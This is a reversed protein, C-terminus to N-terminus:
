RTPISTHAESPKMVEGDTTRGAEEMTRLCVYEVRAADDSEKKNNM